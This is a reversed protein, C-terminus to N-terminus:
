RRLCLLAIDWTPEIRMKSDFKANHKSLYPPDNIDAQFVRRVPQTRFGVFATVTHLPLTRLEAKLRFNTAQM